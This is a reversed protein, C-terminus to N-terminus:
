SKRDLYDIKGVQAGHLSPWALILSILTLTLGSVFLVKTRSDPVSPSCNALPQVTSLVSSYWLMLCYGFSLVLSVLQVARWSTPITLPEPEKSLRQEVRPLRTDFAEYHYQKAQDTYPKYPGLIAVPWYDDRGLALLRVPPAEYTICEADNPDCRHGYQYLYIPKSAETCFGTADGPHRCLRHRDNSDDTVWSTILSRLANYTGAEFSSPFIREIHSQEYSGSEHNASPAISYTSLSLLGHLRPDEAERRYLLDAGLTVVRGQPYASRLYRSLFLTDLPDTARVVIYQVNHKKIESV